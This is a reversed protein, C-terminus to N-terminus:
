QAVFYKPGVIRIERKEPPAAPAPAIAISEGEPKVAGGLTPFSSRAQDPSYGLRINMETDPDAGDPIAIAPAAFSDGHRVALPESAIGDNRPLQSATDDGSLILSSVTQREDLASQCSCNEVFKTRFLFANPLKRYPTGELSVLNKITEGPNRHVYLSTEAAPCMSRCIAEDRAFGYKQTSFSVPFYFGDCTRVCLTRYGGSGFRASVLGEEVEGSENEPTEYEFIESETYQTSSRLTESNGNRSSVSWRGQDPLSGSSNISSLEESPKELGLSQARRPIPSTCKAQQLQESILARQKIAEDSAEAFRDRRAELKALNARMRDIKAPLSACAPAAGNGCDLYNADREAAALAKAQRAVADSWTRYEPSQSKSGRELSALQTRLGVCDAEASEGPVAYFLGVLTIITFNIARVPGSQGM